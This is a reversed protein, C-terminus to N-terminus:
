KLKCKRVEGLAGQGILNGIQYDDKFKGVRISFVSTDIKLDDVIYKKKKNCCCGM